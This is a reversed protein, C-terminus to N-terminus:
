SSGALIERPDFTVRIRPIEGDDVDGWNVVPAPPAVTTHLEFWTFVDPGDAVQKAVVV